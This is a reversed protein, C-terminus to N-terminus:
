AKEWIEFGESLGSPLTNRYYVIIRDSNEDDIQFEYKGFDDKNVYKYSGEGTMKNGLNINLTIAVKTKAISRDQWRGSYSDHLFYEATGSYMGQFKYSLRISYKIDTCKQYILEHYISDDSYREGKTELLDMRERRKEDIDDRNTPIESGRLRNENVQYIAKRYYVGEIFGYKKRDM